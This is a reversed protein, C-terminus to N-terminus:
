KNYGWMQILVMEVYGKKNAEIAGVHHLVAASAMDNLEDTSVLPSEFLVRRGVEERADMVKSRMEADIIQTM